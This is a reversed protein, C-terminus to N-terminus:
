DIGVEIASLNKMLEAEVSAITIRCINLLVEQM